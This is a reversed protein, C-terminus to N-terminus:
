GNAVDRRRHTRLKIAATVILNLGLSLLLAGAFVDSADDGLWWLILWAAGLALSAVLAGVLLVALTILEGDVNDSVANPLLDADGGAEGPEGVKNGAWLNFFFWAPVAGAFVLFLALSVPVSGEVMLTFLPGVGYVLFPGAAFVLLFILPLIALFRWHKRVNALSM